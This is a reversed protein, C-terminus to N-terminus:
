ATTTPLQIRQHTVTFHPYSEAYPFVPSGRQCKLQCGAPRLKDTPKSKHLEEPWHRGPLIKRRNCTFGELLEPRGSHAFVHNKFAVCEHLSNKGESGYSLQRILFHRNVFCWERSRLRPSGSPTERIFQRDSSFRWIHM